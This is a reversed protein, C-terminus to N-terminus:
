LLVKIRFLCAASILFGERYKKRREWRVVLRRYKRRFWAFSRGVKWRDVPKDPPGGPPPKRDPWSRRSIMPTIGRRRLRDGLGRSDYGRDAQLAEPLKEPRGVRGTRVEANDTLPGVQSRGSGDAGASIVSLPNGNGDVM